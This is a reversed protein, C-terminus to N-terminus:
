KEETINTYIRFFKEIFDRKEEESFGDLAKEELMNFVFSVKDLAKRGKETLFVYLSRRNGNLMRREILGEREMRMLLSTVTSTEIECAVAIDKQVCGDNYKLYDLVKPQGQTLTTDSLNSFVQKFFASQTSLLLNHLTKRM